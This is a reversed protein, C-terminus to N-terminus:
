HIQLNKARHPEVPQSLFKNWDGAFELLPGVHALGDDEGSLHAAASSWRYHQPSRVLGAKVPNMELYRAAALLYPEDM